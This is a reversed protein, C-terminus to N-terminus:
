GAASARPEHARVAIALRDLVTRIGNAEGVLEVLEDDLVLEDLEADIATSLSILDHLLRDLALTTEDRDTDPEDDHGFIAYLDDDM